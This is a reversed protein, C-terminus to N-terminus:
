SGIKFPTVTVKTKTVLEVCAADDDHFVGTFFLLFQNLGDRSVAGFNLLFLLLRLRGLGEFVDVLLLAHVCLPPNASIM